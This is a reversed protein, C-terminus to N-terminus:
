QHIDLNIDNELENGWIDWGETKQRAFLEIRPIDGMLDVIRQRIEAPKESHKGRQKILLRKVIKSIRKPKGKKALLCLEIAGGTVWSGMFCVPNNKPTTKFWEFAVTSYSFGWSKLVKFANELHPHTTWMFLVCNEDVLDKVPLSCIDKTKLTPYHQNIDKTYDKGNFIRILKRGGYDWPPDAYIINYKKM